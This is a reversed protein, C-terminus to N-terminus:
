KFTTNVSFLRALKNLDWPNPFCLDGSLSLDAGVVKQGGCNTGM